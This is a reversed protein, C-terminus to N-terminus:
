LRDVVSAGLCTSTNRRLIQLSHVTATNEMTCNWQVHKFAGGTRWMSRSVFSGTGTVDSSRCGSAMDEDALGPLKGGMTWGDGKYGQGFKFRYSLTAEELEEALRVTFVM